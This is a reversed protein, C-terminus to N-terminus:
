YQTLAYSPAIELKIWGVGRESSPDKVDALMTSAAAVIAVTSARCAANRLVIRPNFGNGWACSVGVLGLSIRQAALVNTTLGEVHGTNLVATHQATRKELQCNILTHIDNVIM